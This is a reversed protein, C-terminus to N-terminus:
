GLDITRPAQSAALAGVIPLVVTAKATNGWYGTAMSGGARRALEAAISLGASGISPGDRDSFRNSVNLRYNLKGGRVVMRIDPCEPSSYKIANNVLEYAILILIRANAGTRLSNPARLAVHRRADDSRSRLMLQCMRALALALSAPRSPFEILLRQLAVQAELRRIGEDIMGPDTGLRARVLHLTALAAAFENAHRHRAEDMILIDIDGSM